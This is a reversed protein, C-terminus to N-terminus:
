TFSVGLRAAAEIEKLYKASDEVAKVMRDSAGGYGMRSAEGAAFTGRVGITARAVVDPVAAAADEVAKRLARNYTDTDIAGADMLEQIKDIEAKAAAMPNVRQELEQGEQYLRNREELFGIVSELATMDAAENAKEEAEAADKLSKCHKDWEDTSEKLARTAAETAEAFTKKTETFAATAVEQSELLDVAEMADAISAPDAGAIKLDTLKQRAASAARGAKESAAEVPEGKLRLDEAAGRLDKNMDAATLSAKAADSRAESESKRRAEAEKLQEALSTWKEGKINKVGAARAGAAILADVEAALPLSLAVTVANELDGACLDAAVTTAKLAARIMRLSGMVTVAAETFSSAFGSMPAGEAGIGALSRNASGAFGRLDEQSMGLTRRLPANDGAIEVYAAGARIGSASPM